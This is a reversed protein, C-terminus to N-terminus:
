QSGELLFREGNVSREAHWAVHFMAAGIMAWPPTNNPVYSHSVHVTHTVGRGSHVCVFGLKVRCTAHLEFDDTITATRLIIASGGLQVAIPGASDPSPLDLGHFEVAEGYGNFKSM